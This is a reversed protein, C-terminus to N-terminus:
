KDPRDEKEMLILLVSLDAPSVGQIRSAIGITPPRLKVLKEVAEKSFGSYKSYDFTAPIQRTELKKFREILDYQNKIYGEYKVSTEFYEEFDEPQTEAMPLIKKIDSYFVEPRKLLQTATVPATLEASGIFSLMNNIVADPKLWTNEFLKSQTAFFDKKRLMRNYSEDSVLGFSKGYAMLRIDANDNRLILRYEARSSFLRYPEELEKTVLDDLMVGIYGESRDPLFPAEGRIKKVANIGAVLGQAAAEEYGSTGNIQGALFLGPLTRCELTHNIQSPPVFDYEIGYGPRMIEAKEFGEISRIYALQVERPLSTSLGNLYMENTDRGEPEIYIQHSTKESFKVVKDEISPCYRPGIGTIMKNTKSYLPSKDLNDTIIKHTALNTRAMYCLMQPQSIIKNSFSFPVPIADGPQPIFKSFDLTKKDVRPNTGTKLRGIKLGLAQLSASLKVSPMDGSRGGPFAQLGIFITGNLFTGTAVIVAKAKFFTGTQTLVGDVRNDSMTIKEIMAMKVDLHAQNEVATTMYASYAKKDAQARLARVAPGKRANLMKFQIGTADTALAMEGGLADIERVLQGKALGGIAPNCSMHAIKDMDITFLATHMGMRSAALAAEVGAHGAGIVIIDYEKEPIM